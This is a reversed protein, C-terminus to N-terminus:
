YDRSAFGKVRCWGLYWRLTVKCSERERTSLESAGLVEAWRPFKIVEM